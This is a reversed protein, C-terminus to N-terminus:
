AARNLPEVYWDPRQASFDVELFRLLPIVNNKRDQDKLKQLAAKSIGCECIDAVHNYFSKKNMSDMTERWGYDKIGRYTRFLSMAYATSPKGQIPISPVLIGDVLKEKSMRVKGHRTHKELLANLVSEDDIVRMTMGEFAAFLERTVERWCWEILCVGKDMMDQQYLCLDRLMNPIGRRNLWRKAVTAEIRLLCRAWMELRPDSLVRATRAASLNGARANKAEELQGLFEPHKLYLKLKRLRSDKAGFYATTQYDDGRGKTQGNSTGRIAEIAQLATREDPLRASYTCDIGYVEAKELDLMKSLGPYAIALWQWMESAGLAIDTPGFVNHGQLLKAPSAKMEVGPMARKGMSEHFVKFAMPTFCTALSEFPHRLDDITKEGTVRDVTVKASLPIGLAELGGIVFHIPDSRGEVHHLDVYDPLFPIFLHIRDLM